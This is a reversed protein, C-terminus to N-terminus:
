VRRSIAVARRVVEMADRGFLRVMAEKGYAGRDYIVDPVGEGAAIAQDVGWQMTQGDERAREEPERGRDFSGVRYNLEACAAIVDDGYRVNMLARVSPDHKMVAMLGRAMHSSAGFAPDRCTHLDGAVRIIRGPVACVEDMTRAGPLAYAINTGVEPILKYTNSATIFVDVARLVNNYVRWREADGFIAATRDPLRSGRGATFAAALAATVYEEAREFATVLDLGVALYATIAAAFLCGTGHIEGEVRGRRYERMESGTFLVDVVADSAGGVHGGTALAPLGFRSHFIRVQTRLDGLNRAPEDGILYALEVANPTALTVHPLIVDAFTKEAVGEFLPQGAGAKIIPDFVVPVGRERFDALYPELARAVGDSAVMGLKVAAADVDNVVADMQAKVDRDTVAWFGLVGSTNQYTLATAVTVGHVGIVAFTVVDGTVGAGGSPDLGGITLAITNKM